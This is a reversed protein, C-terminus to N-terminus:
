SAGDVEKVEGWGDKRWSKGDVDKEVAAGLVDQSGEGDELWGGAGGDKKVVEVAASRRAKRFFAEGEFM